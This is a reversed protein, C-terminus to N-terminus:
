PKRVLFMHNNPEDPLDGLSLLLFSPIAVMSVLLSFPLLAYFLWSRRGGGTMGPFKVIQLLHYFLRSAISSYAGGMSRYEVVELNIEQCVKEMWFRTFNGYHYPVSHLTSTQPLLFIAKGGPKLVRRIERVMQFPEFVHELVQISLVTDFSESKVGMCCGDSALFHVQRNWTNSKKKISPELVTWSTSQIGHRYATEYFDWGGVDLVRGQVERRLLDFLFRNRWNRVLYLFKVLLSKM